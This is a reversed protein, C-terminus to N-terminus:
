TLPQRSLLSAIARYSDVRADDTWYIMRFFDDLLRVRPFLLRLRRRSLAGAVFYRPLVAVGRGELVTQHIAALSGLRLVRAFPLDSGGPADRWYRFLPLDPSIDVLVHHAADAPRTFPNRRLLAPAAVFVLEERHLPFAGLRPDAFRSSTVACDIERTRLRALLDDGSGFYLHLTLHPLEAALMRTQPFLWSLGLDPRTGLVLELPAPSTSGRAAAICAEAAALAARATPILRRGADTLTVSRTTRHFLAAGCLEELLQIRRGLAAPTLAVQRAARRFNLTQAAALFGHLVDISPLQM